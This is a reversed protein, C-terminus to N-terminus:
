KTISSYRSIMKKPSLLAIMWIVMKNNSFMQTFPTDSHPAYFSGGRYYRQGLQICVEATATLRVTMLQAAIQCTVCRHDTSLGFPHSYKAFIIFILKSESFMM